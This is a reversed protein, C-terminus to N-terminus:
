NSNSELVVAEVEYVRGFGGAGLKGRIDLHVVPKRLMERERENNLNSLTTPQGHLTMLNLYGPGTTSTSQYQSKPTENVNDNYCDNFIKRRVGQDVVNM